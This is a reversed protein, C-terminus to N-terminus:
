GEIGRAPKTGFRSQGIDAQDGAQRGGQTGAAYYNGLKRTTFGMAEAHRKTWVSKDVLVLDTGTTRGEVHQRAFAIRESVRQAFGIIFSRRMNWKYSGNGVVLTKGFRNLATHCQLTLSMIALQAREIDEPTGVLTLGSRGWGRRGSSRLTAGELGMAAVIKYGLHLFEKEYSKPVDYWFQTDKIDDATMRRQENIVLQADEIEWLAMLQNAKARAAEREGEHKCDGGKCSPDDCDKEALAFLAKITAIRQSNDRAM